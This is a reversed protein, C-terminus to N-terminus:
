AHQRPNNPPRPLHANPRATQAPRLTEHEPRASRLRPRMIGPVQKAPWQPGIMPKFNPSLQKAIVPQPKEVAQTPQDIRRLSPQERRYRRLVWACWMFGGVWLGIIIADYGSLGGAKGLITVDISITIAFGYFYEELLSKTKRPGIMLLRIRKIPKKSYNSPPKYPPM